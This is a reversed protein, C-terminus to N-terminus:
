THQYRRYFPKKVVEAAFQKGRIEVSLKKGLQSHELPIYAMAIAYGLTPSWTGSTIKGIPINQYFVEYGKRAIARGELKLGTLRKQVGEKAQKELIDRGIFSSPMELHVLWGLGAEFPTTKTNMDNGYLHMGAELRLTDRAGLGCPTIGQNILKQWLQRGIPASLLLEFGDEGTYGTRAIFIHSSSIENTEKLQITRHGFPPLNKLSQEFFQELIEQTEPGQLALLVRDKKADSIKINKEDLNKKLWAIDNSYEAANIVLLLIQQNTSNTGLDYIILDDIIGGNNNLLVTYCAEGPGIRNLDSPVLTQLADKSNPGEIHVIGMHSIDFLGAKTRVAQHENILGSFQIPMEWGAFPTFRCKAQVCLEFLPTRKLQM